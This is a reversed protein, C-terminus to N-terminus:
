FRGLIVPITCSAWYVIKIM